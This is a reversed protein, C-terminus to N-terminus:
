ALARHLELLGRLLAAGRPTPDALRRLEDLGAANLALVEDRREAFGPEASLPHGLETLRRHLAAVPVFAHVALLVGMIPREDPRVPSRTWTAYANRLVPDVWSLLNLRSHQCEHVLAEALWLRSPHLSLWASGPAERYSASLHRDPYWGVPVLRDLTGPLQAHWRPLAAAIVGLAADLERVWESPTRGGLDVRNGDKHPHAEDGSLPNADFTALQLGSHGAPLAHLRTPDPVVTLLDPLDPLVQAATRAGSAVALLSPLVEPAGIRALVAEPESALRRELPDRAERLAATAPLELLARLAVLLTKRRLRRPADDGGPPLVLPATPLPM